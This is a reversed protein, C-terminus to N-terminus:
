AMYQFKLSSNNLSGVFSTNGRYRIAIYNHDIQQTPYAITDAYNFRGEGNYIIDMKATIYDDRRIIVDDTEINIIPLNTSDLRVTTIPPRGFRAENELRIRHNNIRYIGYAVVVGICFLITHSLIYRVNIHVM